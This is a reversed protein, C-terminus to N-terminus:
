SKRKEPQAGVIGGAVVGKDGEPRRALSWGLRVIRVVLWLLVLLGLPGLEAWLNLYEIHPHEPQIGPNRYNFASRYPVYALRFNGIGVGTWLHDRIMRLSGMWFALRVQLSGAEPDFISGIREGFSSLGSLCIPWLAYAVLVASGLLVISAGQSLRPPSWLIGPSQERNFLIRVLIWLGILISVWAGRVMSLTLLVMSLFLTTGWLAREWRYPAILSLALGLPIVTLLYASGYNTNGFLRFLTESPSVPELSCGMTCGYISLVSVVLLTLLLYRILRAQNDLQSCTYAVTLYLLFLVLLFAIRQLGYYTNIAQLLSLESVLLLALLPAVLKPLPRFPRGCGGWLWLVTILPVLVGLIAWKLSNPALPSYALPVAAILVGLAM